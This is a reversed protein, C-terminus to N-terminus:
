YPFGGQEPPRAPARDLNPQGDRAEAAHRVAPWRPSFRQAADLVSSDRVTAFVKLSRRYNQSSCSEGALARQGSMERRGSPARPALRARAGQAARAQDPPRGRPVERKPQSPHRVAVDNAAASTCRSARPRPRPRPTRTRARCAGVNVSGHSRSRRRGYRGSLRRSAMRRFCAEAGTAFRSM